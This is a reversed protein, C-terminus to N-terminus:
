DRCYGEGLKITLCTAKGALWKMGTADGNTAAIQEMVGDRRFEIRGGAASGSFTRAADLDKITIEYVGGSGAIALYTGEPGNWRGVWADTAAAVPEDATCGHTSVLVALLWRRM